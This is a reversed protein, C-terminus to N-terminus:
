AMVKQGAVALLDADRDIFLRFWLELSILARLQRTYNARGSLHAELMETVFGTEVIGRAGLRGDLLM